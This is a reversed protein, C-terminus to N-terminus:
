AKIRILKCYLLLVGDAYCNCPMLAAIREHLSQLISDPDKVRSELENTIGGIATRFVHNSEKQLVGFRCAIFGFDVFRPPEREQGSRSTMQNSWVTTFQSIQECRRFFGCFQFGMRAFPRGPVKRGALDTVEFKQHASSKGRQAAKQCFMFSALPIRHGIGIGRSTVSSNALFNVGPLLWTAKRSGSPTM